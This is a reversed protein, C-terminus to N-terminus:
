AVAHIIKRTFIKSINQKTGKLSVIKGLNFTMCREKNYFTGWSKGM